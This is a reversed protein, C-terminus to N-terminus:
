ATAPSCVPIPMVSRCLRATANSESAPARPDAPQDTLRRLAREAAQRVRAYPDGRLAALAPLAEDVRHRAVVKAAMERVRWHEDGLAAVVASAASDDWAWLLGRAGWVRLWYRQAAPGDLGANPGGLSQLLALDVDEGALLRLCGSVVDAAGRSQCALEVSVRPTVGWLSNAAV